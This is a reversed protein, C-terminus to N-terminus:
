INLSIGTHILIYTIQIKLNRRNKIYLHYQNSMEAKLAYCRRTLEARSQVIMM